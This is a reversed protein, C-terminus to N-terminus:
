RAKRMVSVKVFARKGAGDTYGVTEGDLWWASGKSDVRADLRRAARLDVFFLPQDSSSVGTSYVLYRGDPSPVLWSADAPMQVRWQAGSAPDAILVSQDQVWYALGYPTWRIGRRITRFDLRDTLKKVPILKHGEIRVLSPGVSTVGFRGDPSVSLFTEDTLESDPGLGALRSPATNNAAWTHYGSEVAALVLFAAGICLAYVKLRYRFGATLGFRTVLVAAVAGGVFWCAASISDVSDQLPWGIEKRIATNVLVAFVTLAWFTVFVVAGGGKGPVLASAGFGAGFALGLLWGLFGAGAAMHEEDIFPRYQPWSFVTYALAALACTAVLVAVGSLTKAAAVARWDVPRSFLFDGSGQDGDNAYQRVGLKAALAIPLLIWPSFAEIPGSFALGSGFALPAIAAIAIALWMVRGERWEKWFM